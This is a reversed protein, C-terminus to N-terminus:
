ASTMAGTKADRATSAQQYIVNTHTQALSGTGDGITANQKIVLGKSVYLGPNPFTQQFGQNRNYNDMDLQPASADAAEQQSMYSKTPATYEREGLFITDQFSQDDVADEILEGVNVGGVIPATVEIEWLSNVAKNIRCMIDNLKTCRAHECTFTDSKPDNAAYRTDPFEGVAENSVLTNDYCERQTGDASLHLGIVGELLLNLGWNFYCIVKNLKTCNSQVCDNSLSSTYSGAVMALRLV